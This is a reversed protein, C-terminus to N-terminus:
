GKRPRFIKLPPSQLSGCIKFINRIKFYYKLIYPDNCDGGSLVKRGRFPRLLIFTISFIMQFEKLGNVLIDSFIIYLM